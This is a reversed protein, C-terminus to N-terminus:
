LRTAWKLGRQLVAQMEPQKVTAARHGPCVYCVRGNGVSRTWVMPQPEGEHLATFHVRIDSWLEHVYLEDTVNFPEISGFIEDESSVPQIAFPEVPGHGTFRGGLVDFYRRQRQFSATASHIALVGGGSRVFREFAELVNLAIHEHHFYLVMAQFRKLDLETLFDLSRIPTFQTGPVATLVKRAYYRGLFPPHFFGDSVLLIEKM